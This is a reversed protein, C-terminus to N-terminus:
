DGGGVQSGFPLWMKAGKLNQLMLLQVIATAAAGAKSFM